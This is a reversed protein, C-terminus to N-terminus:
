DDTNLTVAVGELIWHSSHKETALDAEFVLGVGAANRRGQTVYVPTRLTNQLKIRASEMPIAQVVPLEYILVKPDQQVLQMEDMNWQAGEIFLGQIYCGDDPRAQVDEGSPFTTVRTFLSSKDLPWKYKRCTTQVLATLYSEPIMLGSLWICIPEEVEVWDKYQKYRRHFHTLWSGLLKRTAPALKRWAMPLQGNYLSTALDDLSASMGIIGALARKLDKLTAMMREVLNNWRELEQLLVVQTPVLYGSTNKAKEAKFIAKRDFPTPIQGTLDNVIGELVTERSDGGTDGGGTRPQLELLDVWLQKTANTLYGIEANPHLGFVEPSNEMPMDEIQQAYVDRHVPSNDKNPDPLKYDVQENFYFHFPQFTDFLFDGMYEELYTVVVRRDMSDTVRGGYMCQGVLYRLSAWPIPGDNNFAKTLYTNALERSAVFDTENYDYVVNWGITGYKRREQVVAHFFALVFVLPRFAFHPCSELLEESVKSYTNKMNMKLGNPPENVVKLSSQLIGLPFSATPETTLWLRFELHPKADRKMIMKELEKMWDILLHCNQLLVWQGRLQGTETLRMAEEGQGQGLSVSRMKSGGMEMKDALKQIEDSPNAGPSIICVIPSYQTSQKYVDIYKLIPPTCYKEGMEPCQAIFQSVALFVRDVRFCRLLVMRQFATLKESYGCPYPSAEPRELDFWEQWEKGNKQVDELITSFAPDISPLRLLDQFGQEPMWPFFKEHTSKGLVINGKLFFELAKTNLKGEGELVKATMQFSLMLKHKEFIGMCVYRYVALTLYQIINNLRNEIDFHPESKELSVKFVDNNFAMLSYEYMNDIASLSDMVFFLIAGRKAVSMYELRAVEIDKSTAVAVELKEAIDAASEKTRELTSILDDNDLINGTALALERILTEELTKLTAKNESMTIILEERQKELDSREMAVVVNLLQAQLGQQTVGYNIVMTKGYVEPAYNPNSLKTCMYLRFNEDWEVAKDGLKIFKRGAEIVFNKELVPDIIPDITEDMNEFLFPNGYSICFELRKLFDPDSFSAVEFRSNSANMKKIWAVAQMQPDICLAFRSSQTTLIGNQISLEDGPLGDSNWKAIEVEDTLLSEVKFNDKLPIEKSKLFTLWEDELIRKRFDFTFAGMYSLFAAGILCDGVLQAREGRLRESDETWRKRESGLGGILRNAADLRKHMLATQEQLKRAEAQGKELKEALSTQMETLMQVEEKIQKLERESEKLNKELRLVLQRKPEVKKAISHYNCIALVWEFLNAAPGSSEKVAAVTLEAKLKDRMKNRIATVANVKKDNLTDKPFSILSKLFDMSQMYTKAQAWSPQGGKLVCVMEGVAVVRESPKAFTRIENIADKSINGLAEEAAAIIPMAESLAAEAEAKNEIIDAKQVVLTEEKEVAFQHKEEAVAKKQTIEAILEENEKSKAALFVEQEALSKSMEAVEVAAKALRELGTGLRNVVDDINQRNAVLLRKYNEIYDLYNKPTVYNYRRLQLGYLVSQQNSVTHVHVMTDTIKDRLDDPLDLKELFRTSVAGLAQQPWKPFWDIVTNNVLGPFNRCRTRLTDGSPSMCLVVHLNDRCRNVFYSWKNDKTPALGLNIVEDVVPNMLSEKEDDAFLAPVMGSALMNNILELFGEQAVQADTFLFVVPENQVGAINYLKKLDERFLEEGYGRCLTIEFMKFGATFTALKTLSQKGSGGVGVLLANGRDVTIIRNIRILHDMAMDFMVLNMRPVPDNYEELIGEVIPKVDAFGGMDEYLRLRDGDKFYDMYDGFLLPEVMIKEMDNHFHVDLLSNMKETVLERDKDDILRDYFVRMCENRWLRGIDGPETFKEPTTRCLAEYVRSLDRLNFIYHFKTPTAPLKDVIYSYLELTMKTIGDTLDQMADAFNQLHSGLIQNYITELSDNTPFIINACSFLSVFRPDLANRGGGPPAMASIYQLDKIAKWQLDKRDYWAGKDILLKLFAIPQMTGYTDVKPMNVDDIFVVLRKGPSPGLVTNTRKEVNDELSRQVDTSTTRSSFNLELLLSELQVEDGDDDSPQTSKIKLNKLFNQITVTKATGSGGVLLVPTKNSVVRDLLWSTRVTDVTPVLISSFKNDSPPVFADVLTKWPKWRSESDDVYYEYLTLREPLSGAGVSRELKEGNDQMPWGCVGKLFSDFRKRDDEIICAGISWIICFVLITELAKPETINKKETLITQLLTCLQVVLNMDVLPLAMRPPKTITGDLEVGDLVFDVCPKLYKQFLERMTEAEEKNRSNMWKWAFPGWGLNKPDVFVMGARSVTAPSAYQLDGVEFLLACTPHVRIREGNPLTLLKNDDMVSNMNEVWLADVDGDFLVYKRERDAGEKDSVKNITRFINSFLGDTWTRTIPDLVGYLESIHQAKANVVFIKTPLKLDTQANQLTTIIVTKGGQTPGVVMTTHRTLMTEYLQVVKDAQQSLYQYGKTKIDNQVAKALAEQTVREVQLGPFLDDILGLFLPVDEFVFKPANMDRLARMLVVDEPKDPDGRKLAGAMVLVSKLARLGWDYHFQKSLQGKALSYLSVMKQALGRASKFGESFLMIECIIALDPLVMVCPRFLAKLNDPLEVRGAYGPNMTIFVGVKSDLAMDTEGCFLFRKQNNRLAYQISRLQEAVVSLVPLEIRNFEDFCGWAGCQALGSFISAMAKYDLGEGCNFVVCFIGLAKALDKTSETKGTGAPGAPAGGLKFTLAQTLTMFCRDTLPTIVLRGNLGMYEHGYDFEGTCQRIICNDVVKEWYMRLQSEWEFERPDMVSDRVFRDVIDRAHVDVIIMTNCKKRYKKDLPKDMEAVLDNLQRTLKSALEKIATKKGSKVKKFGDEVQYTWWIKSGTMAIQGHYKNIWEVRIMKPYFFTGEKLVATLSRKKEKLVLNLWKQVQLGETAVTAVFMLREGEASQVGEIVTSEGKFLLMACNDFMKLMHEQVARPDSSGLISLLEDDSIFYFRPFAMRKTELYDSLGKQCEDLKEALYTFDSLRGDMHCAQDVNPVKETEGMIKLWRKDIDEFKKAEKPLQNAIDESGVFISELYMWKMQVQMWVVLVEGMLALKKEWTHVEQLFPKVWKVNSISQLNMINDDIKEAIETTDLLIYGRDMGAREYKRTQLAEHFWTEKIQSISKEISLERAAGAVINLIEDKFEYLKMDVLNQLTFNSFDFTKGTVDMLMKWHRDRLAEHKLDKFLPLSDYFNRINDNIPNYPELEKYKSDMKKMRQIFQETGRTMSDPQVDVWLANSWGGLTEKWDRYVDYIVTLEQLDRELEGLVQFSTIPLGFLKEAKILTDRKKQKQHLDIKWDNILELGKDLEMGPKGPGNEQFDEKAQVLSKTFEKVQDQTVKRFKDKVAFLSDDRKRAQELLGLWYDRLGAALSAEEPAVPIQYQRLTAYCHEIERYQIEIDMSQSRMNDIVSLVFKLDEISEVSKRLEDEFKKIRTDLKFLRHKIIESLQKGEGTIWVRTEKQIEALLPNCDVCVFDIDKEQPYNDIGRILKTYEEFRKDYELWTLNKTALKEIFMQKDLRWLSSFRNWSELYKNVYFFTKQIGQYVMTQLKMVQSNQSIDNFFTPIHSDSDDTPKPSIEGLTCDICAGDMWRVFMKTTEIINRMVKSLTAQIEGMAPSTVIDSAALSAIIKFLPPKKKGAAQASKSHHVNLFSQFVSLSTLVMRQLAKFIKREWYYYYTKLRPAKGTNTECVIGEIKKLLPAITHYKRFCVDIRENRYHELNDFLEQIDLLESRTTFTHPDKVLCTGVILNVVGNIIQANKHIQKVMSHFENIAANCKQIFEPIGLSNWNLTKFGPDLVRDLNALQTSLIVREHPEVMAQTENFFHLMSKLNETYDHYKEDQLTVNLAVPPVNYGLRDLYKSEQMIQFM